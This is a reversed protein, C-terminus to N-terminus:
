VFWGAVTVNLTTLAGGGNYEVIRNEDPSVAFLECVSEFPPSGYSKSVNVENVYGKTRMMFETPGGEGGIQYIRFTVLKTGVDIITSLDLNYWNQDLTLTAQTWDPAAPDGRDVWTLGDGGGAEAIKKKYEFNIGAIVKLWGNAQAENSLYVKNFISKIEVNQELILEDADDFMLRVTAIANASSAKEVILTEGTWDLKENERAVSLDIKHVQYNHFSRVLQEKLRADWQSIDINKSEGNM